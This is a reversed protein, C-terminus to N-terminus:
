LRRDVADQAPLPQHLPRLHPQSRTLLVMPLGGAGVLQSGGIGGVEPYHSPAVVVHDGDHVVVGSEDQGVPKLSIHCRVGEYFHNLLRHVPGAHVLHRYFVPGPQQAVVAGAIYGPSEPVVQAYHADLVYQCCGEVRLGIALQLAVM